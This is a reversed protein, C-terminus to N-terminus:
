GPDDCRSRLNAWTLGPVLEALLFVTTCCPSLTLADSGSCLFHPQGVTIAEPFLVGKVSGCQAADKPPSM